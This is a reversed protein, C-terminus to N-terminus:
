GKRFLTQVIPARGAPLIAVLALVDPDPRYPELIVIYDGKREASPTVYAALGRHKTILIRAQQTLAETHAISTNVIKADLFVLESGPNAM